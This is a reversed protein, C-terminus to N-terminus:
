NLTALSTTLKLTAIRHCIYNYKEGTGGASMGNNPDCYARVGKQHQAVLKRWGPGDCLDKSLKQGKRGTEYATEPQGPDSFVFMVRDKLSPHGDLYDAKENGSNMM